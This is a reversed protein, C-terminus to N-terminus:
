RELTDLDAHFSEQMDWLAAFGIVICTVGVVATAPIVGLPGKIALWLSTVPIATARVFNPASTTVTARLNTGFQESATTVFVVWYGTAFGVFAILGYFTPVSRGGFTLLAGLAVALMVLFAGVVRKRSALAQSLAGSALDGVVVGLYGWFITRGGTPKVPLGLSLGIEPAFVFLVGGAFWIPMGVLVIRAFRVFRPWPRILLRVDGRPADAASARHFLTSELVGVRLVLLFLGIVGGVGYAIRWGYAGYNRILFEALAGAALAGSLGVSAVITTGIGRRSKPLLESVLTIGAGLEGALGFGALFRLVAYETVSTIFANALNAISYLVISGFVITLRGRKDGLVGLAVGGLLMGALQLNLLLSGVRTQDAAAVGLGELSPVRLISFLVLDYIDVFYGLAAVVVAIAVKSSLADSRSAEPAGDLHGTTVADESDNRM